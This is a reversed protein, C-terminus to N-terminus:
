EQVVRKALEEPNSYWVAEFNDEIHKILNPRNRVTVDVEDYKWVTSEVGEDDTTTVQEFNKRLRVLAQEGEIKRVWIPQQKIGSQPM